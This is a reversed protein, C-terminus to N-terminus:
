PRPTANANRAMLETAAMASAFLLFAKARLIKKSAILESCTKNPIDRANHKNISGYSDFIFMALQGTQIVLGSKPIAKGQKVLGWRETQNMQSKDFNGLNLENRWFNLVKFNDDAYYTITDSVVTAKSPLKVSSKITQWDNKITEPKRLEIEKM